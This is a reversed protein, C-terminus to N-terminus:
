VILWESVKKGSKEIRYIRQRCVLKKWKEKWTAKPQGKGLKDGVEFKLARWLVNWTFGVYKDTRRHEEQGDTECWM